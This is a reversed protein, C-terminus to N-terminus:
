RGMSEVIPRSGRRFSRSRRDHTMSSNKLRGFGTRTGSCSTSTWCMTMASRPVGPRPEWLEDPSYWEELSVGILTLIEVVGDDAPKAARLGCEPCRFTYASAQLDVCVRVVIDGPSLWVVGCSACTAQCRDHIGGGSGNCRSAVTLRCCWTPSTLWGRPARGCGDAVWPDRPRLVHGRLHLLPPGSRAPGEHEPHPRRCDATTMSVGLNEPVEGPLMLGFVLASMVRDLLLPRSRVLGSRLVSRRWARM